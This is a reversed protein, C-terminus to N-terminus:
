HRHRDLLHAREVAEVHQDRPVLAEERRLAEIEADRKEFLGFGTLLPGFALIAAVASARRM